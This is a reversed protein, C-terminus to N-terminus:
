NNSTIELDIMNSKLLIKNGAKRVVRVTLNGPEIYLDKDVFCTLLESNGFTTQQKEDNIYVLDGKEFGTGKITLTAEGNISNFAVTAVGKEPYINTINISEQFLAPM